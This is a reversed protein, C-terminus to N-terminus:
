RAFRTQGALLVVANEMPNIVGVRLVIDCFFVVFM